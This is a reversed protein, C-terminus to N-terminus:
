LDRLLALLVAQGRTTLTLTGDVDRNVLGKVIAAEVNDGVVGARQWDTDSGVCFLFVREGVSLDTAATFTDSTSQKALSRRTLGPLIEVAKNPDQVIRRGAETIWLRTVEVTRDGARSSELTASALEERVLDVLMEINFGQALMLTATTGAASGALIRLARLQEPSLVTM